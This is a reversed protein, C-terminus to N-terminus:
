CLDYSIGLRNSTYGFTGALTLCVWEHCPKADFRRDSRPLGIKLQMGVQATAYDMGNWTAVWPQMESLLM